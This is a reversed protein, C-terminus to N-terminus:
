TIFLCMKYWEGDDCVCVISFCCLFLSFMWMFSQYYQYGPLYHPLSTPFCPSIPSSSHTIGGLICLFSFLSLDRLLLRLCLAIQPQSNQSNSNIQYPCILSWSWLQIVQARTKTFVCDLRIAWVFWGSLGSILLMLKQIGKEGGPVTSYPTTNTTLTSHDVCCVCLICCLWVQCDHIGHQCLRVGSSQIQGTFLFCVFSYFISLHFVLPPNVKSQAMAWQTANHSPFSFLSFLVSLCSCYPHSRLSFLVYIYLHLCKCFFM